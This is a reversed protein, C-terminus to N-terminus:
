PVFLPKGNVIHFAVLIYRKFCWEASLSREFLINMIDLRVRSSRLLLLSPVKLNGSELQTVLFEGDEGFFMRACCSLVDVFSSGPKLNAALQLSLLVGRPTWRVEVAGQSAASLAQLSKWDVGVSQPPDAPTSICASTQGPVPDAVASVALDAVGSM